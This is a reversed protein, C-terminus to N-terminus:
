PSRSEPEAEVPTKPGAPKVAPKDMSSGAKADKKKWEIRSEKMAKIEFDKTAEKREVEAQMAAEKQLEKSQVEHKVQVEHWQRVTGARSLFLLMPLGLCFLLLLLGAGGVVGLVIWTGRSSRPPPAYGLSGAPPFGGPPYGGASAPGHSLDLMQGAPAWDGTEGQRVMTQPTVRGEAVFQEMAAPPYPGYQQGGVLVYWSEHPM